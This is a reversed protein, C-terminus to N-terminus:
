RQAIRQLRGQCSRRRFFRLVRVRDPTVKLEPYVTLVDGRGVESDVLVITANEIGHRFLYERREWEGGASVEPFEPQLRHQLDHVAMVYPLGIEFALVHPAPVLMLEVGEDRIRAALRPRRKVADAQPVQQRRARLSRAAGTLPGLRGAFLRARQLGSHPFLPEVHHVGESRIRELEGGDAFVVLADRPWGEGLAALMTVSYQHVGGGSPDTVALYGLRGVDQFGGIM